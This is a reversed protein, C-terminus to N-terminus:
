LVTQKSVPSIHALDSLIFHQEEHRCKKKMACKQNNRKLYDRRVAVLRALRPVQAQPTAVLPNSSFWSGKNYCRKNPYHIVLIRDQAHRNAENVEEQTACEDQQKTMMAHHVTSGAYKKSIGIEDLLLRLERSCGTGGSKKKREYDWWIREDLKKTWEKAYLLSKIESYSIM